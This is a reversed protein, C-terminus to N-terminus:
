LLGPQYSLPEQLHIWVWHHQLSVSADPEQSHGVPCGLPSLLCVDACKSEGQSGWIGLKVLWLESGDWRIGVKMQSSREWGGYLGVRKLAGQHYKPGLATLFIPFRQSFFFSLLSSFLKKQKNKLSEIQAPLVTSCCLAPPHSASHSISFHSMCHM